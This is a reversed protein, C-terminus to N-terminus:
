RSDFKTKALHELLHYTFLSNRRGPSRDWAAQNPGCAYAILSGAHSQMSAFDTPGGMHGISKTGSYPEINTRCCDLLFILTSPKKQAMEDHTTQACIAHKKCLDRDTAIDENDVAILYNQGDLQNGHGLSSFCWLIKQIM